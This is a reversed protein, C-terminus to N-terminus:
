LMAFLMCAAAFWAVFCTLRLMNMCIMLVFIGWNNDKPQGFTVQVAIANAVTALTLFQARSVAGTVDESLAAVRTDPPDFLLNLMHVREPSLPALRKDSSRTRRPRGSSTEEDDSESAPGAVLLATADLRAERYAHANGIGHGAVLCPNLFSRIDLRLDQMLARDAESMDSPGRGAAWPFDIMNEVM